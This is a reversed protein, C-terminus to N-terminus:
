PTGANVNDALATLANDTTIDTQSLDKASGALTAMQEAQFRAAEAEARQQKIISVEEDSVVVSPTVGGAEALEDILQETDVKDWVTPDQTVNAVTGVDEYFTQLGTLSVSKQAQALIGLFEVKLEVGQLEDPPPPILGQEEMADYTIDVLPELLDDQINILTGAIMLRSEQLRANIETATRSSGELDSIAIFARKHFAQDIAEQHRLIRDGISGKDFNVDFLSRISDKDNSEDTYIRAGPTSPNNKKKLSAPFKLPPNIGLEDAQALRREVTQLARQAGIAKIAPCMSGWADEGTTEWRPVLIRFRDMGSERLFQDEGNSNRALAREYYFSAYRKFKAELKTPDHEENPLIIHVVDVWTERQGKDWFMRVKKSFKSWDINEEVFPEDEEFGFKEILQRVTMKFERKVTDVKGRKNASIKYSGIPLSSTRIVDEFDDEVLMAATSVVSMDGYITPLVKYLNSKLFVGNMDKTVIDLWAKVNGLEALRRDDVTLRVWQSAPNTIGAMMGQKLVNQAWLAHENIIRQSERKGKRNQDITFRGRKPAFYDILEMHFQRHFSYENDLEAGRRELQDLKGEGM